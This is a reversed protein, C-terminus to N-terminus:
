ILFARVHYFHECMATRIGSATGGRIHGKLTMPNVMTGADHVAVYDLFEIKGTEVDVEVATLHCMHGMVPYFVGLDTRDVSPMTTLPHDYVHTADIGSTLEADDPMSLRFYHAHLAIKAITKDHEPAGKVSVRGDVLELDALSAELMHSGVTLLKEKIKGATGTLAGAIMVTYRSGGPGTDNLRSDTDSYSITIDIPDM